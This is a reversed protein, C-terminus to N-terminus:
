LKEIELISVNKMHTGAASIKAANSFASWQM